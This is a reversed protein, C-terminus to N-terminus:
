RSAAAWPSAACGDAGGVRGGRASGAGGGAVGALAGTGIGTSGEVAVCVSVDTATGAAFVSGGPAAFGNAGRGLAFTTAAGGLPEDTGGLSGVLVVMDCDEAGRPEVASCVGAYVRSGLRDGAFELVGPTSPGEAAM